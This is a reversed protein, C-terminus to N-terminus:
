GMYIQYLSKPDGRLHIHVSTVRFLMHAITSLWTHSKPVGHLTTLWAERDMFNELCFYHLPNGHKRWPILGVDRTDGAKAPLNKVVLVVQSTRFLMCVVKLSSGHSHNGILDWASWVLLHCICLIHRFLMIFGNFISCAISHQDPRSVQVWQSQIGALVFVDVYYKYFICLRM